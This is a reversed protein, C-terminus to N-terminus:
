HHHHDERSVAGHTCRYRHSIKAKRLGQEMLVDTGVLSQFGGHVSSWSYMQVWPYNHDERSVPGHTCRYRHSITTRGPCQEMLVDTGVSSQLEGTIVM